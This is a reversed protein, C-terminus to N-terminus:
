TLLKYLPLPQTRKNTLKREAADIALVYAFTTALYCDEGQSSTNFCSLCHSVELYNMQLASHDLSWPRESGMRCACHGCHTSSADATM